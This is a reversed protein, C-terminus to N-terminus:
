EYIWTFDLTWHFSGAASGGGGGHFDMTHDNISDIMPCVVTTRDAHIRELMPELWGTTAECHSDLFVLVDGTAHEAGFARARILGLRRPSPIVRVISPMGAM